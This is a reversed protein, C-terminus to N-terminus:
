IEWIRKSHSSLFCNYIKILVADRESLGRRHKAAREGVGEVIGIM